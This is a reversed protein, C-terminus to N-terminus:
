FLREYQSIEQEKNLGEPSFPEKAKQIKAEQEEIIDLHPIERGDITLQVDQSAM